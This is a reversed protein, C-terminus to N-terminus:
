MLSKYKISLPIAPSPSTPPLLTPIFIDCCGDFLGANYGTPDGVHGIGEIMQNGNYFIFRKRYGTGVLVSDITTIVKGSSCYKLKVSDGVNLSFDYLLSDPGITYVKKTSTDNRILGGGYSIFYPNGCVNVTPMFRLVNHQLPRM